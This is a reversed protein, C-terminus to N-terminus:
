ILLELAKPLLIFKAPTHGVFDGNLQIDIPVKSTITFGNIDSLNYKNDGLGNKSIYSIEKFKIKKSTIGYWILAIVKKIISADEVLFIDFANNSIGANPTVKMGAMSKVFNANLMFLRIQLRKKGFDLEAEHSTYPFILIFGALPYIINGIIKKMRAFLWHSNLKLMKADFGIGSTSCFLIKKKKSNAMLEAEGLNILKKNNGFLTKEAKKIKSIGLHKAFDNSTGLPLIGLVAKSNYIGNIVERVTGDGGCAVIIDYGQKVSERAIDEANRERTTYEYSFGIGKNLMNEKLKELFLKHKKKLPIPNIIFKYPPM